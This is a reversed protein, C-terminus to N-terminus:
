IARELSSYSNENDLKKTLMNFKQKIYLVDLLLKRVSIFM